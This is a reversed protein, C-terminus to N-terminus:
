RRLAPVLEAALKTAIEAPADTATALVMPVGASRQEQVVGFMDRSLGQEALLVDRWAGPRKVGAFAARVEAHRPHLQSYKIGFKRM